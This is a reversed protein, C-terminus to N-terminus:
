PMYSNRRLGYPAVIGSPTFVFGNSKDILDPGVDECDLNIVTTLEAPQQGKLYWERMAARSPMSSAYFLNFDDLSGPWETGAGGGLIIENAGRFINWSNQTWGAVNSLRAVLVGNVYGEFVKAEYDCLMDFKHWTNPTITPFIGPQPSNMSQFSDAADSRAAFEVRGSAVVSLLLGAIASSTPVYFMRRSNATATYGTMHAWISGGVVRRGQLMNYPGDTAHRYFGASGSTFVCTGGKRAAINAPVPTEFSWMASSALTGSFAEQIVGPVGSTNICRAVTGRGEDLPWLFGIDCAPFQGKAYLDAIDVQSVRSSRRQIFVNALHGEFGSAGSDGLLSTVSTVSAFNRPFTAAYDMVQVGNVWMRTRLGPIDIEGVVHAWSNILAPFVGSGAGLGAVAFDNSVNNVFLGAFMSSGSDGRFVLFDRWNVGDARTTPKVWCGFLLHTANLFPTSLGAPITINTTGACRASCPIDQRAITTM